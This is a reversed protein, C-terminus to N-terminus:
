EGTAYPLISEVDAETVFNQHVGASVIHNLMADIQEQKFEKIAKERGVMDRRKLFRRFNLYNNDVLAGM